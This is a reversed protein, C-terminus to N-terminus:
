YDGRKVWEVADNELERVAESVDRTTSDPFEQTLVEEADYPGGAYYQYGGEASVYPVREVPDEYNALFWDVMQDPSAYGEKTLLEVADLLESVVQPLDGPESMTRGHAALNRLEGAQTLIDFLPESIIGLSEAQSVKALPSHSLQRELQDGEVKRELLQDLAAEMASWGLLLAATWDVKAVERARSAVARIQKPTPTGSPIDGLWILHLQWGEHRGVAEALKELRSDHVRTPDKVEVVVTEEDNRLVLDPQLEQIDPPVQGPVVVFYGRRRYTSAIQKVSRYGQNRLGEHIM